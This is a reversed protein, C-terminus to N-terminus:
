LHMIYSNPLQQIWALFLLPCCIVLSVTNAWNAPNQGSQSSLAGSSHKHQKCQQCLLKPPKWASFRALFPYLCPPNPCLIILHSSSCPPAIWNSKNEPRILQNSMVVFSNLANHQYIYYVLVRVYHVKLMFFFFVVVEWSYELKFFHGIQTILGLVLCGASLNDFLFYFNFEM